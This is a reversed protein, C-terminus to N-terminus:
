RKRAAARLLTLLGAATLGITSPEPAPTEIGRIDMAWNGTRQDLNADIFTGPLGLFTPGTFDGEGDHLFGDGLTPGNAFNDAQTLVVTYDGAALLPLSLFSDWCANTVPDVGVPGCGGDNNLNFLVATPGLGEFITLITDFGGAAIPDGAENVGGAYGFSILEISTPAALTFTFVAQEDDQSFTGTFSSGSAALATLLTVIISKRLM